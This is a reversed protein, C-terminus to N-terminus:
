QDEIQVESTFLAFICKTGICWRAPVFGAPRGSVEASNLWCHFSEHQHQLKMELQTELILVVENLWPLNQEYCPLGRLFYFAHVCHLYFCCAIFYFLEKMWKETGAQESIFIFSVPLSVTIFLACVPLIIVVTSMTCLAFYRSLSHSCCLVILHSYFVPHMFTFTYLM